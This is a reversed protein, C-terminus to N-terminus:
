ARNQRRHTRPAQRTVKWLTSETSHHGRDQTRRTDSRSLM